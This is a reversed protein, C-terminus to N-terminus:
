GRKTLVFANNRPGVFFHPSGGTIERIAAHSEAIGTGVIDEIVYTGGPHLRPFLNRLTAFLYPGVRATEPDLADLRPLARVFTEQVLDDADHANGSLRFAFPRLRPGYEAYLAEWASRDRGRLARVLDADSAPPATAM